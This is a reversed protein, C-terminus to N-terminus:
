WVARLVWLGGMGVLITALVHKTRWAVMAALLWAGVRPDVLDLSGRDMAVAPAVLAALVAPPIFRLARQLPAPVEAVRDALAIFLVRLVFTGAGVIVFVVWIALPGYETM